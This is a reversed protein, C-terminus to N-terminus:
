LEGTRAPSNECGRQRLRIPNLAALNAAPRTRMFRTSPAAIFSATPPLARGSAVVVSGPAYVWGDADAHFECARGRRRRVPRPKRGPEHEHQRDIGAGALM